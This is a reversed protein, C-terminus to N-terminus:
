AHKVCRAAVPLTKAAVQMVAGASYSTNRLVTSLLFRSRALEGRPPSHSLCSQSHHDLRVLRPFTEATLKHPEEVAEERQHILLLCACTKTHYVHHTLMTPSETLGMCQRRTSM